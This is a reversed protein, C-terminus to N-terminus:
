GGVAWLLPEPLARAQIRYTLCVNRGSPARRWYLLVSAESMLLYKISCLNNSLTKEQEKPSKSLGLMNGTYKSHHWCQVVILGM